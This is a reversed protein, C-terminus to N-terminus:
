ITKGVDGQIVLIHLLIESFFFHKDEKGVCILRIKLLVSKMYILNIM